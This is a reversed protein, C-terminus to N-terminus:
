IQTVILQRSTLIEDSTLKKVASIPVTVIKITEGIANFVELVCGTEGGMPHPVFDVLTAIDGQQLRHGPFNGTLSIEQYLEVNM